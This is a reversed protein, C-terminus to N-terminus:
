FRILDPWTARLKSALIENHTSRNIGSYQSRDLGTELDMYYIVHKGRRHKRANAGM